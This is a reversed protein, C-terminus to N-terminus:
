PREPTLIWPRDHGVSHARGSVAPSGDSLFSEVILVGVVGGLVRVGDGAGRPVVLGAVPGVLAPVEGSSLVWPRVVMASPTTAL